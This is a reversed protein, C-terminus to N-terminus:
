SQSFLILNDGSRYFPRCIEIRGRQGALGYCGSISNSMRGSSEFSERVFFIFYRHNICFFHVSFLQYRKVISLGSDRSCFRFNFYLYLAFLQRRPHDNNSILAYLAVKVRSFIVQASCLSDNKVYSCIQHKLSM